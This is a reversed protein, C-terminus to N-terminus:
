SGLVEVVSDHVIEVMQDITSQFLPNMWKSSVEVIGNYLEGTALRLSNPPVELSGGDVLSVVGGTKANFSNDFEKRLLQIKLRNKQGANPFFRRSGRFFGEKNVKALTGFSNMEKDYIFFHGYDDTTTSEGEVDVSVNALPEDNEDVVFGIIDGTILNEKPEYDEITPSPITVVINEENIDKRCSSLIVIFLLSFIGIYKM